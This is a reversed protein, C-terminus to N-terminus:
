SLIRGAQQLKWLRRTTSRCSRCQRRGDPCLYLNEGSLPHGRKCHTQLSNFYSFTGRQLKDRTNDADTGLYVHDPNVCCKIDCKHLVQLGEPILGVYLQYALRHAQMINPRIWVQGYGYRLSKMWIWCGSFPLREIRREFEQITPKM